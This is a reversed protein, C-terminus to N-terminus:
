LLLRSILLCLFCALLLWKWIPRAEKLLRSLIRDKQKKM